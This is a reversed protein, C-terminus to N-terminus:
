RLTATSIVLDLPPAYLALVPYLSFDVDVPVIYTQNGVTGKLAGLDIYDVGVGAQDLPDPNRTFIIHVDPARVSRFPQEASETLGELRLTRPQNPLQYITLRGNTWRTPTDADIFIGDRVLSSGAPPTYIADAVPAPVDEQLLQARVLALAAAPRGEIEADEDGDRLAQYAAQQSAPLNLFGEWAQEELGPFPNPVSDRDLLPYWTPFLWVGGAVLALIGIIFFRFRIDM